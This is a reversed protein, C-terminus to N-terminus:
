FAIQLGAMYTTPKPYSHWIMGQSFVNDADGGRIPTQEPDGFPYKTLLFFNQASVYLRLKSLKIKSIMDSPFSYGLLLNRGRLFSGDFIWHTDVNTVYGARTERIEAIQSNQNQPTWAGLVTAYSNAISVRDESAHLNMDMVDNGYSFQMDFTLDFNGYRVTNAL